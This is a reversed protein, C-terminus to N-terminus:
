SSEPLAAPVHPVRRRSRHPRNSSIESIPTRFSARLTSKLSGFRKLTSSTKTGTSTSPASPAPTSARSLATHFSATASDPITHAISSRADVPDKELISEARFPDQDYFVSSDDGIPAPSRDHATGAPKASDVPTPLHSPPYPFDLILRLDQLDSIHRSSQRSQRSARSSSRRRISTSTKEVPSRLSSSRSLLSVPHLSDIPSRYNSPTAFPDSIDSQQRAGSVTRLREPPVISLAKDIADASPPSPVSPGTPAADAVPGVTPVDERSVPEIDQVGDSM